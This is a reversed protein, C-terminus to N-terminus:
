PHRLGTSKLANCGLRYWMAAAEFQKEFRRIHTIDSRIASALSRGGHFIVDVKRAVLERFGSEYGRLELNPHVGYVFNRGEQYGLEALRQELALYISEFGAAAIQAELGLAIPKSLM